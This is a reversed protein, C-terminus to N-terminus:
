VIPSKRSKWYTQFAPGKSNPPKPPRGILLPVPAPIDPGIVIAEGPALTPIFMAADRDLDGCAKEVTDRDHDNTLRHVILTGLQSLVDAPIDRPRQTALVCSLGYKRGEKAILGFADLYVSGYEDGVTRGLFQHAEDLFVIMPRDRFVDRRACDLLYRGIINLLIERTHHEFRVNKFSIRILDDDDKTCFDNLVNALSAGTTGFICALEPSHIMTRLRSIMSECYSISNNEPGGWNGPNNQSNSWVCENQVQDPLNQINFTCFPTNVQARYHDIAAFYSARPKNSKEVLGAAVTVGAIAAGAAANVLKLSKIADRLRPGQSQGSPRILTFLDNESMSQYPFYVVQATGEAHNFTYDKSIAPIDAFEGTPDFLIARGGAVKIQQLLTAITWSKGGGTAGLVGCHRGFLKEASLRIPVGGGADLTGLELAVDGPDNTTNSILSAFASGSALYVGDGVRPHTKLGRQLRQSAQDITALLQIRGIPHPDPPAGLSPELSLREVDPVRM